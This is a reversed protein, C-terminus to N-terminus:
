NELTRSEGASGGDSGDIALTEHLSWSRPESPGYLELEEAKEYILVRLTDSQTRRLQEAVRTLLHKEVASFRASIRISKMM